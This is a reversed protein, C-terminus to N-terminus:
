NDKSIREVKRGSHEQFAQLASRMQQDDVQLVYTAAKTETVLWNRGGKLFGLAGGEVKMAEAPGVPSMWMPQKGNSVYIAEISDFPVTFLALGEKDSVAMKTGALVVKADRERNKGNDVVVAKAEFTYTSGSTPVHPISAAAAATAGNSGGAPDPMPANTNAAGILPPAGIPRAGVGRPASTAEPRATAPAPAAAVNGGELAPQTTRTSAVLGAAPTQANASQAATSPPAVRALASASATRKFVIVGVVAAATVAAAAVAALRASTTSFHKRKLVITAQATQLVDPPVPRATAAAPTPARAPMPTQAAGYGATQELAATGMEGLLAQQFEAASQYRDAPSKALARELVRACWEPLDARHASAPTPPESLQKQVMGLATDAQFPLNGTLLRYFVVGCAYVDARGDVDDAMAQEPAMYAPTGMMHGDNTLHEAGAVRAIGFDMIKVGGRDTVMLNAPKLDRHVIGARHAHDLAGLVQAVLYAAREPPMPGSRQALQDLTEGRVLEMVMLLEADAYSIEYITAIEPHNLRALTTAEARFRKMVEDDALEPNLVKVAVERDLTEDVAKYVTGMGGRGLKEVFRYKGFTKGIM